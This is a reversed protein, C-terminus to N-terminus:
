EDAVYSVATELPLQEDSLVVDKMSRHMKVVGMSARLAANSVELPHKYITSTLNRLLNIEVVSVIGVFCFLICILGFGIVIPRTVNASKEKEM